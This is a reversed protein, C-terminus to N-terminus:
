SPNLKLLAEEINDASQLYSGVNLVEVGSEVLQRANSDNVGGDWGIELRSNIRLAAEVKWLNDLEAQGGHSGLKGGFILVHDAIEIMKNVMKPGTQPLLCIGVKIGFAKLEELIKIDFHAEAHVIVMNPKCAVITELYDGPRQYMVHFDVNEDNDWWAKEFSISKPGAFQGDTFDLQLRDVYGKVKLYEKQYADSDAALIAAAIQM